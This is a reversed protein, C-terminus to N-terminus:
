RYPRAVRTSLCLSPSQTPVYVHRCSHLDRCRPRSGDRKEGSASALWRVGTPSSPSALVSLPASSRKERLTITELSGAHRQRHRHLQRCASRWRCHKRPSSSCKSPRPQITSASRQAEPRPEPTPSRTASETANASQVLHELCGQQLLQCALVFGGSIPVPHAGRSEPACQTQHIGATPDGWSRRVTVLASASSAGTSSVARTKTPQRGPKTPVLHVSTANLSRRVRSTACLQSLKM